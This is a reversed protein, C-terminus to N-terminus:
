YATIQELKASLIHIQFLVDLEDLRSETMLQQANLVESSLAAGGAYKSKTLLFNEEVMKSGSRIAELRSLAQSSQLRLKLIETTISRRLIENQFRVAEASLRSQQTRVNRGGWDFLPMEFAVGISYGAISSREPDPLRLNDRSTLLGADAVLSISPHWEQQTARIEAARSKYNLAAIALDLNSTSDIGTFATTDIMAITLSDLSGALTFATDEPAGMLEALTLRAISESEGAQKVARDAANVEVQTKLFDTYGVAGAANLRKVLELYDALRVASQTRLVVESRARLVEIFTERVAYELDRSAARQEKTLREREINLQTLRFRRKGGDYLSQELVIQSGLQGGNSIAPDYGFHPSSPAYSAGALFKMQPLAARNEVTRSLETSRIANEAQRLTPSNARAKALCQDLTLVTQACSSQPVCSVIITFGAM